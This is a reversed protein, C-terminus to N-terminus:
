APTGVTLLMVDLVLAHQYISYNLWFLVGADKEWVAVLWTPRMHSGLVNSEFDASYRKM